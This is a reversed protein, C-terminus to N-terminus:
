KDGSKATNIADSINNFISPQYKLAIENNNLETRTNDVIWTKHITENWKILSLIQQKRQKLQIKQNNNYCNQFTKSVYKIHSINNFSIIHQIIDIPLVTEISLSSFYTNSIQNSKMTQIQNTLINQMTDLEICKLLPILDNLSTAENITNCLTNKQHSTMPSDSM